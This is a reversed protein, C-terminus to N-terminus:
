TIDLCYIKTFTIAIKTQIFRKGINFSFICLNQQTSFKNVPKIVLEISTTFTFARNCHIDICMSPDTLMKNKILVKETCLDKHKYSEYM